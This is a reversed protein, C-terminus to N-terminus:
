FRSSLNCDISAISTIFSGDGFLKSTMITLGLISILVESELFTTFFFILISFITCCDAFRPDKMLLKYVSSKSKIDFDTTSSIISGSLDINIGSNSLM